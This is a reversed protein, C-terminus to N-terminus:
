CLCLLLPYSMALYFQVYIYLSLWDAQISTYGGVLRAHTQHLLLGGIYEYM